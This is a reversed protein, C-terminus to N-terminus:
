GNRKYWEHGGRAKCENLADMFRKKSNEYNFYEVNKYALDIQEQRWKEDTLLRDAIEQTKKADYPDCCCNPYNIRMSLVRDSGVVPVGMCATEVTNRGYTHYACPEYILKNSALHEFYEVFNMGAMITDWMIKCWRKMRDREPESYAYLISASLGHKEKIRNATRSPLYTDGLWWHYITAISDNKVDSKLAKLYKTNTPHPICFAGNIMNSVQHPETGFVMDGMKQLDDYYEPLMNFAEDWAECVYDNNVILMTKSDAGLLARIKPILPSDMPSMNVQIVDYEELKERTNVSRFEQIEGKFVNIWNYMGSRSPIEDTLASMAGPTIRQCVHVYKLENM